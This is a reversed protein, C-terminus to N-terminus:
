WARLGGPLAPDFTPFRDRSLSLAKRRSLNAANNRMRVNPLGEGTREFSELTLDIRLGERL